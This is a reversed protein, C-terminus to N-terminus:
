LRCINKVALSGLVSLTCCCIPWNQVVAEILQHHPCNLEISTCEPIGIIYIFLYTQNISWIQFSKSLQYQLPNM